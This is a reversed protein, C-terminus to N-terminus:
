LLREVADRRFGRIALWLGLSLEWITIPLAAVAALPSTQGFVGFLTAGASTALLPIGIIGILPIARPVLRGRLLAPALCLANIAPLFGPGILFSWTHVGVLAQALPDAADTGTARMGSLTLVAIVGVAIIGAELTRSAVFGLAAPESVRRVVPALVVATGICSVALLVELVASWQAAFASPEAAGALLPANLLAAPISTAFTALYLLGAALSLRRHPIM